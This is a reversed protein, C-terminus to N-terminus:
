IRVLKLSLIVKLHLLLLVFFRYDQHKHKADARERSEAALRGPRKCHLASKALYFNWEKM